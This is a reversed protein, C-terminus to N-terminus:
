VEWDWSYHLFGTEEEYSVSVLSYAVPFNNLFAPIRQILPDTEYRVFLDLTGTTIKEAHRNNAKLDNGGDETWVIYPPETNPPAIFHYTKEWLAALSEIFTTLM